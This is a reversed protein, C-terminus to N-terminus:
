CPWKPLPLQKESVTVWTSFFILKGYKNWQIGKRTKVNAGGAGRCHKGRIEM